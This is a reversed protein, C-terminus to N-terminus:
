AATAPSGYSRWCILQVTTNPAQPRTTAYVLVNTDVFQYGERASM